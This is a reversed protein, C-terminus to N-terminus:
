LIKVPPDRMAYTLLVDFDGCPSTCDKGKPWAACESVIRRVAEDGSMGWVRACRVSAPSIRQGASAIFPGHQPAPCEARLRSQVVRDDLVIRGTAQTHGTHQHTIQVTDACGVARGYEYRFVPDPRGDGDTDAFREIVGGPHPYTGIRGRSFTMLLHRDGDYRLFWEEHGDSDFDFLLSGESSLRTDLIPGLELSVSSGAEGVHLVVLRSNAKTPEKLPLLAAVWMDGHPTRVCVASMADPPM